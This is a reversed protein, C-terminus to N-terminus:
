TNAFTNYQRFPHFALKLKLFFAKLFNRGTM